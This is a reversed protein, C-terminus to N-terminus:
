LSQDEVKGRGRGGLSCLKYSRLEGFLSQVWSGMLTLVSEEGSSRWPIRM